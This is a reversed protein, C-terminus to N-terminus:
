KNKILRVITNGVVIIIVTGITRNGEIMNLEITCGIISGNKYRTKTKVTVKMIVVVGTDTVIINWNVIAITSITIIIGKILDVNEM